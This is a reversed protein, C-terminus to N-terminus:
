QISPAYARAIYITYTDVPKGLREIAITKVEEVSGFQQRIDDSLPRWRDGVIIATQGARSQPEFWFDFAEVRAALSVVDPDALAFALPSALSYETGAIFDTGEAKAVADVERAVEDWGYSWASTQDSFSIFAMVPAATTNFALVGAILLGFLVHGAVLLRSRLHLFPLAAAYAVLNWHVLINTFLSAGLFTLTSLWFAFRAMLSAEGRATAFRIIPWILFPSLILLFGGLYGWLGNLDFAALPRRGGTIFGFSAFENQLNWALVPAQMAIALLAAVYPHPTRFVSRLPRHWVLALFAGALLIAGTYKSLAALGIAFAALYLFRWRRAGAAYAAAFRVFAYVALLSTFLLLHDPLALTTLAFFIPTTVLLMVSLWFTQRWAEGSLHRAFGYLLAIDGILTLVTVARLGFVNWGLLSAAAQTWGILPPHDFYSLALHQGWLWYYTEDMFPHAAVLLVLKIAIFAVAIARYVRWDFALRESV